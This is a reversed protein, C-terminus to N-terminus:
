SKKLHCPKPKRQVNYEIAYALYDPLIGKEELPLTNLYAKLRHIREIPDDRYEDLITMVRELQEDTLIDGPSTTKWGQPPNTDNM